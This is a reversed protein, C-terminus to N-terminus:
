RLVEPKHVRLFQVAWAVLDSINQGEGHHSDKLELNELRNDDRVGNKHHITESNRLPRGLHEQMVHRHEMMGAPAFWVYGDKHRHRGGKYSHFGRWNLGNRRKAAVAINCGCSQSAGSRLSHGVIEKTNGCDCQCAWAIHPGRNGARRLVLLKGFRSGTLDIRM